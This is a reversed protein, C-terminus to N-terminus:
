LSSRKMCVIIESKHITSSKGFLSNYINRFLILLGPLSVNQIYHFVTNATAYQRFDVILLYLRYHVFFYPHLTKAFM